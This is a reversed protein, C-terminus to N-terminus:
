QHNSYMIICYICGVMCDANDRCRRRRSCVINYRESIALPVLENMIKILIESADQQTFLFGAELGYLVQSLSLRFQTPILPGNQSLIDVLGNLAPSDDNEPARNRLSVILDHARRLFQLCSNLFCDTTGSARTNHLLLWQTPAPPVVDSPPPLRNFADSVAIVAPHIGTGAVGPAAISPQQLPPIAPPPTQSKNFLLRLGKARPVTVVRVRPPILNPSPQLPPTAQPPVAPSITQRTPAALSPPTAQHPKKTRRDKRARLSSDFLLTSYDPLPRTIVPPPTPVPPVLETSLDAANATAIANKM